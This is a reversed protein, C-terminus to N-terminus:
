RSVGLEDVMRDRPLHFTGFLLDWVILNNGYNSNSEAPRRSHHWRHLEPGSILYNLPGLRVDCNAHQYFGNIAYFVFYLSLVESGVGLLLFPATDLLFQLSKELPHFRGVNLWYLREPGHHVAHLRWLPRFGHAARHLWYRLFDALLLMLIAQAPVPWQHPWLGAWGHRGTPDALSVALAFALLRPLLGQVLAMFLADQVVEGRNPRWSQRYPLWLELLTVVLAGAAVTLMAAAEVPVGARWLAGHSAFALVLTLPYATRRALSAFSDTGVTPISGRRGSNQLRLAM